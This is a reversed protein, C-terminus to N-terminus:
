IIADHGIASFRQLKQLILGQELLEQTNLYRQSRRYLNCQIVNFKEPCKELALTTYKYIFPPPQPYFILSFPMPSSLPTKLM